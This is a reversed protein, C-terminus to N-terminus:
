KFHSSCPVKRTTWHSLGWGRLVPSGPKIGPQPVLDWMSCSLTKMGYSFIQMGWHLAFIRHAVVSVSVTLHTLSHTLTLRLGLSPQVSHMVLGCHLWYSSSLYQPMSWLVEVGVGTGPTSTRNLLSWHQDQLVQSCATNTTHKMTTRCQLLM